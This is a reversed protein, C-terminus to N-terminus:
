VCNKKNTAIVTIMSGLNKLDIGLNDHIQLYGPLNNWKNYLTTM